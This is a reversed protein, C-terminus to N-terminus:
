FFWLPHQGLEIRIFRFDSGYVVPSMDFRLKFGIATSPLFTGSNFAIPPPVPDKIIISRSISAALNQSDVVTYTVLQTSPVSSDVPLGTTVIQSTLDGDLNDSATAGADEATGYTDGIDIEVSSAGILTVVPSTSDQVVITLLASSLDGASTQCSYAITHTALSSSSIPAPNATVSLSNGTLPDVGSASPVTLTQGAAAEVTYPSAQSVTIIPRLATTGIRICQYGLDEAYLGALELKNAPYKTGQYAITVGAEYNNTIFNRTQHLQVVDGEHTMRVNKVHKHVSQRINTEFNEVIQTSRLPRNVM